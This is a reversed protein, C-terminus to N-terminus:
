WLLFQKSAMGSVAAARIELAKQKEEKEKQNKKKKKEKKQDRLDRTYTSMDELLQVLKNYEEETGSRIVMM